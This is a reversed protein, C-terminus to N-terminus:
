PLTIVHGQLFGQNRNLHGCYPPLDNYWGTSPSINGQDIDQIAWTNYELAEEFKRASRPPNPYGWPDVTEGAEDKGFNHNIGFMVVQGTKRLRLRYSSPCVVPKVWQNTDEYAWDLYPYLYTLLQNRNRNYYMSQGYWFGDRSGEEYGPMWGNHEGTYENLAMMLNKMAGQCQTGQARKMASSVIPTLLAALISIIAIVVLLEILSFGRSPKPLIQAPATFPPM